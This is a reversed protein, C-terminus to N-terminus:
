EYEAHEEEDHDEQYSCGHFGFHVVGDDVVSGNLLVLSLGPSLDWAGEAVVVSAVHREVGEGADRALVL